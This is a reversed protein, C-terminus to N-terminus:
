KTEVINVGNLRKKLEEQVSKRVRRQINSAVDEAISSVVKYLAPPMPTEVVFHLGTEDGSGKAMARLEKESLEKTDYGSVGYLERIKSKHVVRVGGGYQPVTAESDGGSFLYQGLAKHSAEHTGPMQMYRHKQFRVASSTWVLSMISNRLSGTLQQDNLGASKYAKFMKNMLEEQANLVGYVCAMKVANEFGRYSHHSLKRARNDKILSRGYAQANSTRALGKKKLYGVKGDKLMHYKKYPKEIVKGGYSSKKVGKEIYYARGGKKVSTHLKIRM